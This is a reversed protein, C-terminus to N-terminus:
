LDKVIGERTIQHSDTQGDPLTLTVSYDGWSDLNLSRTASYVRAQPWRQQVTKMVAPPLKSVQVDWYIQTSVRDCALVFILLMLLSSFRLIRMAIDM